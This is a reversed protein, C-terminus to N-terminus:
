RTSEKRRKANSPRASDNAGNNNTWGFKKARMKLSKMFQYFGDPECDYLTECQKATADKLHVYGRKTSYNIVETRPHCPAVGFVVAPAGAAQGAQAM